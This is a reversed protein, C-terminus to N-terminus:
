LSVLSGLPWLIMMQVFKCSSSHGVSYALNWHYRGNLLRALTRLCHVTLYLDYWPEQIDRSTEYLYMRMHFTLKSGNISSSIRGQVFFKVKTKPHVSPHISTHVYPCCLCGKGGTPRPGRLYLFSCKSDAQMKGTVKAPSSFIFLFIWHM